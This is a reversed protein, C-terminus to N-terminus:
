DETIRDWLGSKVAWVSRILPNQTINWNFNVNGANRKLGAHGFKKCLGNNISGFMEKGSSDWWTGVWLGVVFHLCFRKPSQHYWEVSIAEWV